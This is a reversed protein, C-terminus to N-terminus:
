RTAERLPEGRLRPRLPLAHRGDDAPRGGAEDDRVPLRRYPHRGADIGVEAKATAVDEVRRVRDDPLREASTLARGEGRASMLEVPGPASQHLRVADRHGLSQAPRRRTAAAHLAYYALGIGTM